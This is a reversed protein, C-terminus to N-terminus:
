VSSTPTSESFEPTDSSLDSRGAPESRRFTEWQRKLNEKSKQYMVEVATIRCEMELREMEKEKDFIARMALRRNESPTFNIIAEHFAEVMQIMTNGDIISGFWRSAKILVPEKAQEPYLEYNWRNAQDFQEVDFHEKIQDLTLIFMVDVLTPVNGYIGALTGTETAELLDVPKNDPYKVFDKIARIDKTKINVSFTLGNTTQFSTM